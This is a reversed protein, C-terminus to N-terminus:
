DAHVEEGVDMYGAAKEELPCFQSDPIRMVKGGEVRAMDGGEGNEIRETWRRGAVRSWWLGAEEV